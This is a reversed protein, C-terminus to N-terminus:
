GTLLLPGGDVFPSFYVDTTILSDCTVGGINRFKASVIGISAPMNSGFNPLYGLPVVWDDIQFEYSDALPLAEFPLDTEIRILALDNKPNRSVIEANFMRPSIPRFFIGFTNFFGQCFYKKSIITVLLM